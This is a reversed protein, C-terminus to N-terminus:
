QVEFRIEDLYFTAGRPNLAKTASWSFGGIIHTLDAGSLDLAYEKWMTGLDFTRSRGSRLSDGYQGLIGGVKFEVTVPNDSRAWFRLVKYNSLNFGDDQKAVPKMGWNNMPQQWYVGAWNCSSGGSDCSPTRGRPNYDIRICSEGAKPNVSWNPRQQIDGIDGMLGTPFFHNAPAGDDKYIFFPGGGPPPTIQMVRTANVASACPTKSVLAEALAKPSRDQRFIGWYPEVPPNSKWPQDFAEFYAFRVDSLSLSAYYECQAQESLGVGPNGATPLGVEKLITVRGAEAQIRHFESKTWDVAGQPDFHNSFYPHANPFVWDGLKLLESSYRQSVESTTVLKASTRRIETMARTLVALSYRHNMLGENGVCIGLVIRSKSVEEAESIEKQNAPDWVGAIMGEFGADIAASALPRGMMGLSTYTVIGTFGAKRLASLDARISDLSPEVGRDPNANTPSYDVWQIRTLRSEANGQARIAYAGLAVVIAFLVAATSVRVTKSSKLSM